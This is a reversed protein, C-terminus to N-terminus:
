EDQIGEMKAGCNPCYKKRYGLFEVGGCVSCKAYANKDFKYSGDMKLWEGHRIPEASPLKLITQRDIDSMNQVFIRHVIWDGVDLDESEKFQKETKDEYEHLAKWLAEIAASRSILDSM